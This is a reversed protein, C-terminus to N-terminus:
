AARRSRRPTKEEEITRAAGEAPRLSLQALRRPAELLQQLNDRALDSQAAVLDQVSRCQAIRSLAETNQKLREQALEFLEQSVDQFGRVLVTNAQSVAEINKSSRRALEEAKPGSFGLINTIQDGAREFSKVAASVGSQVSESANEAADRAIQENENNRNNPM